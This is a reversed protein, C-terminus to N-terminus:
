LKERRAPQKAVSPSLDHFYPKENGAKDVSEKGFNSDRGQLQELSEIEVNDIWWILCATALRHGVATKVGIRAAGFRQEDAVKGAEVIDDAGRSTADMMNTMVKRRHFLGGLYAINAAPALFQDLKEVVDQFDVRKRPRAKRVFDAQVVTAAREATEAM